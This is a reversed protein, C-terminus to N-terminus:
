SCIFLFHYSFRLPIVADKVWQKAPAKAIGNYKCIKLVKLGGGELIDKWEGLSAFREQTQNRSKRDGTFLVALLDKYWFINPVLIFIRANKKAVRKIEHLAGPIDLFHELSGLCTIVDFSEREFPLAEAVGNLFRAGPAEKKAIELAKSSIDMGTLSLAGSCESAVARLFYGGGCALDLLSQFDPKERRVIQAFWRYARTEDRIPDVVFLRDYEERIAEFTKTGM